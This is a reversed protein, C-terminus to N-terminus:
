NTPEDLLLVNPEGMLLRMLALRRREGGSLEAIRARARDGGFGFRECLSGATLERGDALTARKRISELSELVREDRPLEVTDQSLYALKVTQGREVVGAGPELQGALVRLLTTKGSGNAGVLAYRDAPGLRWTLRRLLPAPAGPHAVTLDVADLVKDGLRSGAFRLLDVKDRAPPEDAILANAAEIRFKPKSTRAPPGRRLWALEKRVLNRRREDRAAALRDREARALVYASYGGESQYITRD